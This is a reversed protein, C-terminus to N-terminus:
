NRHYNQSTDLEFEFRLELFSVRVCVRIKNIVNWYIKSCKYKIQWLNFRFSDSNKPHPNSESKVCIFDIFNRTIWIGIVSITKGLKRIKRRIQSIFYSVLSARNRNYDLYSIIAKCPKLQVNNPFLLTLEKDNGYRTM